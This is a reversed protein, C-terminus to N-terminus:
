PRPGFAQCPLKSSCRTRTTTVDLPLLLQQDPRAGDAPTARYFDEDFLRDMARRLSLLEGFPSPRRVITM